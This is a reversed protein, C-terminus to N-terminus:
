QMVRRDNSIHQPRFKPLIYQVEGSFMVRHGSRFEQLSFIIVKMEPRYQVEYYRIGRLEIM